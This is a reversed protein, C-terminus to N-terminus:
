IKEESYKENREKAYLGVKMATKKLIDARILVTVPSITNSILIDEFLLMAEKNKIQNDNYLIGDVLVKKNTHVLAYGPNNELFNVQKQLKFPDIWYDDGECIAIFDGKCVSLTTIFNTIMGLNRDKSSLRIIDPNRLAYKRCLDGTSDTSSDDGIVVEFPFSVEQMLVSEIATSLFKEHNYTIMLVSVLPSSM